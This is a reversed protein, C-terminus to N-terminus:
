SRTLEKWCAARPSGRSRMPDHPFDRTLDLRSFRRGETNAVTQIYFPDHVLALENETALRLPVHPLSSFERDILDHIVRLRNPSEPHGEGPNHEMYRDDKIIALSSM